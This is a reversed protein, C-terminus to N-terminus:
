DTQKKYENPKGPVPEVPYGNGGNSPDWYLNAGGTRTLRHTVGNGADYDTSSLKGPNKTGTNGGCGVLGISVLAALASTARYNM